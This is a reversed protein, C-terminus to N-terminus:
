VRARGGATRSAAAAAAAELAAARAAIEDLRELAPRERDRQMREVVAIAARNIPCPRGAAIRVLHGNFHDIESQGAEIDGSMSCYTNELSRSFPGSLVRAVLPMSLLRVATRPHVGVRGLPLGAGALIAYNERLLAFFLPRARALSLLRGNDIGSAAALPGIAANYMLKSHKYPLIDDVIRLRFGDFRELADLLPALSPHARIDTEAGRNSGVHLEGGRTIRTHTRGPFCESVFSAIGEYATREAVAPDFGNQIPLLPDGPALRDTVAANDFCKTALVVPRGGEPEWADFPVLEPDIPPRGDVRLGHCRGWALKTPDAEVLRVAMGGAALAYAVACGIGGAGVVDVAPSKEEVVRM